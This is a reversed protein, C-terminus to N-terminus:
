SAYMVVLTAADGPKAFTITVTGTGGLSGDSLWKLEKTGTDFTISPIAAVSSIWGIGGAASTATVWLYASIGGLTPYANGEADKGSIGTVVTGPGVPVVTGAAPDWLAQGGTTASVITYASAYQADLTEVTPVQGVSLDGTTKVNAPTATARLGYTVQFNSYTAM